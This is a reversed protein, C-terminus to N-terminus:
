IRKHKHFLEHCTKCLLVLDNIEKDPNGKNDYSRHHVNLRTLSGCVMCMKDRKRVKKRLSIWYPTKLYDSYKLKRLGLRLKDTREKSNVKRERKVQGKTKGRNKFERSSMYGIMKHWEAKSLCHRKGHNQFRPNVPLRNAIAMLENRRKEPLTYIKLM